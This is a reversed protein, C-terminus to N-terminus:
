WTSWRSSTAGNPTASSARAWSTRGRPWSRTGTVVDACSAAIRRLPLNSSTVYTWQVEELQLPPEWAEERLAALMTELQARTPRVTPPLVDDQLWALQEDSWLNLVGTMDALRPLTAVWPAFRAGETGEGRLVRLLRAFLRAGEGVTVEKHEEKYPFLRDLVDQMNLADGKRVVHIVEGEAIDRTAFVGRGYLGTQAVRVKESARVRGFSEEWYPAAGDLWEILMAGERDSPPRDPVVPSVSAAHADVQAMYSDYGGGQSDATYDYGGGQAMYSAGADGQRVALTEKVWGVLAQPSGGADFNSWEHASWARFIPQGGYREFESLEQECVAPQEECSIQYAGGGYNKDVTQWLESFSPCVGCNVTLYILVSPVPSSTITALDLTM